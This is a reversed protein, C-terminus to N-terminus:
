KFSLNGCNTEKDSLLMFTGMFFTTNTKIGVMQSAPTTGITINVIPTLETLDSDTSFLVMLQDGARLKDARDSTLVDKGRKQVIM